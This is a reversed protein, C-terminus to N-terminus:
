MRMRLTLGMQVNLPANADGSWTGTAGGGIEVAQVFHQGLGAMFDYTAVMKVRVNAVDGNSGPLCGASFANTVDLGVGNYNHSGSTSLSYVHYDGSAPDENLGRVFTVRNAVNNNASRWTATDYTWTNTSDRSLAAVQVRNYANWVDLRNATGGAAAAPIFQMNLQTSADTAITGVYVGLSAGPGNSIAVSNVLVGNVRTLATSGAGTGRATASGGGTDWSPGRTCRVTTGDLWVFMDYVKSAGAASPSKTADALTQSLEAFSYARWDTGDYLMIAAGNYPSYYVTTAGSVDAVLVPVATTLTLRGTPAFMPVPRVIVEPWNQGWTKWNSGDTEIVLGRGKPVVVNASGDITESGNGDLTLDGSSNNLVGFRFPEGVEAAEPTTITKSAVTMVILKGQDGALVDYDDAVSTVGGAVKGFAALVNTNVEEIADKLPDALKEKHKAWTIENAPTEAGDDTPPNLNYDSVTVETYPTGM